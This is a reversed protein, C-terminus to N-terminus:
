RNKNFNIKWFLLKILLILFRIPDIIQNVKSRAEPHYITDIPVFGIKFGYKAAKVIMETDSQYGTSTLSIRELVERKIARYGSQSDIIKVGSILSVLYSSITNAFIRIFPMLEQQFKRAGIVLDYGEEIKKLFLPIEQPNHQGDADLLVFIVVSEKLGKSFGKQLSGTKGINEKNIIVTAGTGKAINATNDISGDDIVIINNIYKRCKKIVMGINKEENNAPIIVITSYQAEENKKIIL